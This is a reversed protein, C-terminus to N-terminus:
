RSEKTRRTGLKGLAAFAGPRGGIRAWVSRLSLAARVRRRTSVTSRLGGVLEDVETWFADVEAPTPDGQGFVTADARHALTLTSPVEHAGAIVGASERRTAGRPVTTGLDTVVDVVEHWGGSIRDALQEASRRRARRRAKYALIAVIPGLILLLPIGVAMLILGILGWDFLDNDAEDKEDDEVSGAKAKDPEEPPEPDQLVPPKPVTQSKPEPQIQPKEDPVADIPVWGYEKYPVEIWAHVDSGLVTWPEGETYESKEGPYFGMVVRAPIGAQRAMLAFAVAFQEDDGVMKEEEVLTDIREASHGPRSPTQGDLGSSLVGFDQLADRILFLKTAPDTEEGTFQATKAALGPPMASPDTEPLDADLITGKRLADEDPEPTVLAQMTYTDGPRVGATTIATHTTSNYYAGDTQAEATPGQWRLGTLSGVEPVWVGSYGTVTVQVPVPTGEQATAIEEGVRTYFGTDGGDGSADYVVGDYRDLTALRIRGNEPLESVTFLEEERVDKAYHRFAVLPSTYQHIDLPPVITERLVTRPQDSMLLPATFGAAVAAVTLITAGTRVRYWRLRRTAERSSETSISHTGVRAEMVRVAGWLLAVIAIVLGQVVPMAADVTGLLIVGVFGAVVPVVAWVAHRVRWAITGSLLAVLLMLLFPVVSLDPFSRMPPVTTVFRKWGEVAGLLLERLTDLTPVVGAISTHPLALAGGFLLYAVVALATVTVAPFRRWAGVWAVALGVVAGGAAPLVWGYSGWVPGFGVAVAAFMLVLAAVDILALRTLARPQEAERRRTTGRGTGTRWGTRTGRTRSSPRGAGSGAAGLPVNGRTNEDSM